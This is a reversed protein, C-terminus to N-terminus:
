TYFVLDKKKSYTVNKKQQKNKIYANRQEPKLKSLKKKEVQKKYAEMDRRFSNEIKYKRKRPTLFKFYVYRIAFIELPLNNMSTFGCAVIPAGILGIILLRNDWTDCLALALPLSIGLGLATCVIQRMTFNGVIKPQFKRIDDTMEISIM